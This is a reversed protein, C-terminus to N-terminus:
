NSEEGPTYVWQDYADEDNVYHIGDDRTEEHFTRIEIEIPPLKKETHLHHILLDDILRINEIIVSADSAVDKAEKMRYRRNTIKSLVM